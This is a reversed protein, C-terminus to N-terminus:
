TQVYLCYMLLSILMLLLIHISVKSEVIEVDEKTLEMDMDTVNLYTFKRVPFCNTQCCPSCSNKCIDLFQILVLTLISLYLMPYLWITFLFISTSHKPTCIETLIPGLLTLLVNAWSFLFSISMEQSKGNFSSLQPPGITWFSFMPIFIIPPFKTTASLAKKVGVSLIM